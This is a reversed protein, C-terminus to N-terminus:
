YAHTMGTSPTKLLRAMVFASVPIAALIVMLMVPVGATVPGPVAAFADALWAFLGSRGMAGATEVVASWAVESVWARGVGWLAGVSVMPHAALWAGLAALPAIFAVLMGTLMMWGRATAPLWRSRAPAAALAPAAAAAPAIQVRAMVLDAFAPSPAVSPLGELAAILARAGELETSCHACSRLHQEALSREAHSLDGEALQELTWYPLHGTADTV